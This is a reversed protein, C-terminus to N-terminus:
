YFFDWKCNILVWFVIICKKTEQIWICMAHPSCWQLYYNKLLKSKPTNDDCNHNYTTFQLQVKKEATFSSISMPIQQLLPLYLTNIIDNLKYLKSMIILVFYLVSWSGWWSNWLPSFCPSLMMAGRTLFSTIYLLKTSFCPKIIHITAWSM